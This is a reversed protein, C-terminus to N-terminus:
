SPAAESGCTGCRAPTSLWNSLLPGLPAGLAFFLEGVPVREPKWAPTEGYPRRTGADNTAGTM